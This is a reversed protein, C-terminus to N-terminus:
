GNHQLFSIQALVVILALISLGIACFIRYKRTVNSYENIRRRKLLKKLIFYNVIILSFWCPIMFFKLFTGLYYHFIVGFLMTVFTLMLTLVGSFILAANTMNYFPERKKFYLYCIYLYKYYLM